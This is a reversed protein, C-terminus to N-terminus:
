PILHLLFYSTHRLESQGYTILLQLIPELFSHAQETDLERLSKLVDSQMVQEERERQGQLTLLLLFPSVLGAKVIILPFFPSFNTPFLFALILM